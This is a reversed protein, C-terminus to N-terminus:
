VVTLEVASAAADLLGALRARAVFRQVTLGGYVGPRNGGSASLITFPGPASPGNVELRLVQKDNGFDVVSLRDCRIM